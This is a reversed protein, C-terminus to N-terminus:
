RSPVDRSVQSIGRVLPVQGNIIIDTQQNVIYNLGLRYLNMAGIRDDNSQYNCNKCKFTHLKKNRNNKDIHGCKPCSQSTYKPNVKIVDCANNRAKYIIKQELDYFAWSTMVYRDKLRVKQTSKKIGTLDELVFLTHKPNNEILAKSVCHNINQMWRNERRGLSRLKKRASATNRYQLEIRNKIFTARKQKITRGNYFKSKGKSDYTNAIFNIGRDIGVINAVNEIDLKEIEYTVPIHLYCKENKDISIKASGFKLEKFKDFRELGNEYFNIKIRDKLTNISFQHKTESFSYDRNWVLSLDSKKFKVLRWQNKKDKKSLKKKNNKLLTKYKPMVVRITSTAMQSKLNFKERIIQYINKHVKNVDLIKTEYIYESVFNCAEMFSNMTSKLLEVQEKTTKLQIKATITQTEM